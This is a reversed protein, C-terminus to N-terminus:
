GPEYVRAIGSIMWRPGVARTYPTDDAGLYRAAWGSLRPVGDWVCRGLYDLVPHFQRERAMAEVAQGAVDPSVYIGQHQLWEAAFLDDESKWDRDAPEAM